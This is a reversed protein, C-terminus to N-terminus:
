RYEGTQGFSAISCYVLNSNVKAITSYDIGLKETVGPRFNELLVDCNAAVEYFINRGADTNLNLTLSKKNRNISLFYASEGGIFPPGWHRTDDGVSPIEIKIIEAGLDGLIM